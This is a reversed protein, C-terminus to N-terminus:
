TDKRDCILIYVIDVIANTFPFDIGSICSLLSGPAHRHHCFLSPRLHGERTDPREPGKQRLRVRESCTRGHFRRFRLFSRVHIDSIWHRPRHRDSHAPLAGPIGLRGSSEPRSSYVTGGRLVDRCRFDRGERGADPDGSGFLGHLQPERSAGDPPHRSHGPCHVNWANGPKFPDGATEKVRTNEPDGCYKLLHGGRLVLTLSHDGM